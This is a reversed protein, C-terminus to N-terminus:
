GVRLWKADYATLQAPVLSFEVVNTAAANPVVLHFQLGFVGNALSNDSRGLKSTTPVWIM